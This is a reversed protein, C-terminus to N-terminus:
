PFDPRACQILVSITTLASRPDTAVNRNPLRIGYAALMAEIDDRPIAIGFDKNEDDRGVIM